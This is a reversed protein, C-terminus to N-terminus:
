TSEELFAALQEDKIFEILEEVRLARRENDEGRFEGAAMDLYCIVEGLRESRNM